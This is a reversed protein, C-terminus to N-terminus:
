NKGMALRLLREDLDSLGIAWAEVLDPAWGKGLLTNRIAMMKPKPNTGALEHVLTPRLVIRPSTQPSGGVLWSLREAWDKGQAGGVKYLFEAKLPKFRTKLTLDLNTGFLKDYDGILQNAYSLTESSTTKVEQIIAYDERANAAFCVWAIDIDRASQPSLPRWANVAHAKHSGCDHWLSVCFSISEGLNGRLIDGGAVAEDASLFRAVTAKLWILVANHGAPCDPTGEWTIVGDTATGAFSRPM